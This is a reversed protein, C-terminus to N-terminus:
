ETSIGLRRELQRLLDPSLRTSLDPGPFEGSLTESVYARFATEIQEGLDAFRKSFKLFLPSEIGLLDTSVVTQGDCETGAGIGITPIAVQETILRALEAPVAEVVMSYAGSAAVAKADEIVGLASELDAGQTGFGTTAGMQPTLGVHGMVPIGASVLVRIREAIAGRGGELKVADAGGEQLLRGANALAQADDLHYSLFPMDAVIHTRPAGRVVARCHYLVDDMTVPIPSDYGLVTMGLSDGVLILDIGAREVLRAIPYDYAAIMTLKAGQKRRAVDRATLKIRDNM